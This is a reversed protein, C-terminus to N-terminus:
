TAHSFPPRGNRILFLLIASAFLDAAEGLYPIGEEIQPSMYGDTGIHADIKGKKAESFCKSLGFDCIKLNNDKPNLLINESKIDLHAIGNKHLHNLGM